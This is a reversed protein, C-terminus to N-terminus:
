NFAMLIPFQFQEEILELMTIRVWNRLSHQDGARGLSQAISLDRIVM